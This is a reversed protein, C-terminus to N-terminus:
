YECYQSWELPGAWIVFRFMFDTLYKHSIGVLFVQCVGIVIRQSLKLQNLKGKFVPGALSILFNEGELWDPETEM